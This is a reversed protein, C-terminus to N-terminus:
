CTYDAFATMFDPYDGKLDDPKKWTGPTFIM